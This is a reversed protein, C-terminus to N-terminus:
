LHGCSCYIVQTEPFANLRMWLDNHWVSNLYIKCSAVGWNIVGCATFFFKIRALNNVSGCGGCTLLKYNIFGIRKARRIESGCLHNHGCMVLVKGLGTVKVRARRRLNQYPGTPDLQTESEGVVSWHGEEPPTNLLLSELSLTLTPPRWFCLATCSINALVNFTLLCSLSHAFLGISIRLDLQKRLTISQGGLLQGLEEPCHPPPPPQHQGWHASTAWCSDVTRVMPQKLPMYNYHGHLKTWQM